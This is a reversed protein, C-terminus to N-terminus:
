EKGGNYTELTRALLRTLLITIMLAFVPPLLWWKWYETFYIGSFGSAKNIMLGWSKALPDSLGLYALAAEQRITKGIVGLANVLLLPLLEPMMHTRIIYLASGGYREALVVYKREKVSMTKARIQKAIPAWSFLSIIIIINWISQGFFAGLVILIPLQPICLFVNILFSILHDTKGGRYGAFTGLLGGAVFALFASIIGMFMCSFYGRSIQAYIDIGLNDTGLLHEMSPAELSAGSPIEPSHPYILEGYAFFVTLILLFILLVKMEGHKLAKKM